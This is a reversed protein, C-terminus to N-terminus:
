SLNAADAVWAEFAEKPLLGSQRAVESGGSFVIFTPISKIQLGGSYTQNDDTNLKLVVLNGAHSQAIEAIIPAAM